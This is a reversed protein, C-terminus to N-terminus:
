RIALDLMSWKLIKLIRFYSKKLFIKFNLQNEKKVCSSITFKYSPITVPERRAGQTRKVKYSANLDQYVAQFTAIGRSSLTFSVPSSFNSFYM